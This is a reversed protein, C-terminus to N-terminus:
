DEPVKPTAIADVFRRPSRSHGSGRQGRLRYTENQELGMGRGEDAAGPGQGSTCLGDWVGSKHVLDGLLEVNGNIGEM